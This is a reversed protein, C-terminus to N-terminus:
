VASGAELKLAQNYLRVARDIDGQRRAREAAKELYQMM